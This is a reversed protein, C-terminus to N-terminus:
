GTFAKSCAVFAAFAQKSGHMDKDFLVKDNLKVRLSFGDAEGVAIATSKIPLYLVKSGGFEGESAEMDIDAMANIAVKLQYSGKAKIQTDDIPAVFMGSAGSKTTMMVLLGADSRTVISCSDANSLFEWAGMDTAHAPVVAALSVAASLLALAPRASNLIEM